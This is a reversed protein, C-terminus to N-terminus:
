NLREPTNLRIAAPHRLSTHSSTSYLPPLTMPFAATYYVCVCRFMHNQQQHTLPSLITWKKLLSHTHKFLFPVTHLKNLAWGGGRTLYNLGGRMTRIIFIKAITVLSHAVQAVVSSFARLSFHLSNTTCFRRTQLQYTSINM